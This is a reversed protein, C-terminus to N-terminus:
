EGLEMSAVDGEVLVKEPDFSGRQGIARVAAEVELFNYKM